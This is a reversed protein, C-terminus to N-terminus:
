FRVNVFGIFHRTLPSERWAELSPIARKFGPRSIKQCYEDKLAAMYGDDIIGREYYGWAAEYNNLNVWVYMRYRYWENSDLVDPNSDGVSILRSLEPDTVLMMLMENGTKNLDYIAQASATNTNQRIEFAVLLLSAIVAIGGLWELREKLTAV